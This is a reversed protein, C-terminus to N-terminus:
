LMDKSTLSVGVGHQTARPISLQAISCVFAPEDFVRGDESKLLFFGM